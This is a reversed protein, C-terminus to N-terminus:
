IMLKSGVCHGFITMQRILCLIYVSVVHFTWVHHVLLIHSLFDIFNKLLNSILNGFGNRFCELNIVLDVEVLIHESVLSM